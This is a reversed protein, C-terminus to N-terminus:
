GRPLRRPHRLPVRGSPISGWRESPATSMQRIPRAMPKDGILAQVEAFVLRRTEPLAALADPSVADYPGGEWM